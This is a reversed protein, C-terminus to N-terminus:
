GADNLEDEKLSLLELRFYDPRAAHYNGPVMAYVPCEPYEPLTWPELIKGDTGATQGFDQM